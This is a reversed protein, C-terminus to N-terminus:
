GHPPGGQQQAFYLEVLQDYRGPLEAKAQRIAAGLHPAARQESGTARTCAAAHLLLEAASQREEGPAPAPSAQPHLVMRQRLWGTVLQLIETLSATPNASATEGVQAIRQVLATASRDSGADITYGELTTPGEGDEDDLETTPSAECLRLRIEPQNADQERLVSNLYQAAESAADTAGAADADVLFFAPVISRFRPM